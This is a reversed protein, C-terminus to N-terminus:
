ITDTIGMFHQNGDIGVICINTPGYSLNNYNSKTWYFGTKNDLSNNNNIHIDSVYGGSLISFDTIASTLGRKQFIDLKESGYCQEQTLLTFNSM